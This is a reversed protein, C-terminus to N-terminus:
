LYNATLEVSKIRHTDGDAEVRVSMVADHESGEVHLPLVTSFVVTGDVIEPRTPQPNFLLADIAPKAPVLGHTNVTVRRDEVGMGRVTGAIDRIVSDDPIPITSMDNYEPTEDTEWTHSM